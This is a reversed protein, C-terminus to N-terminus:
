QKRVKLRYYGQSESGATGNTFSGQPHPINVITTFSPPLSPAWEVDYTRGEVSSWTLSCGGVGCAVARLNLSSDRDTPITGIFYEDANCYGDGDPDLAPVCDEATDFYTTEWSDLLGDGDKDSAPTYTSFLESEGTGDAYRAILKTKALRSGLVM